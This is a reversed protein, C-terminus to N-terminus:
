HHHRPTGPQVLTAMKCDRREWGFRGIAEAVAAFLHSIGSDQRNMESDALTYATAVQTSDAAAGVEVVEIGWDEPTM